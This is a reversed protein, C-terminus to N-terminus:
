VNDPMPKRRYRASGAPFCSAHFFVGLGELYETTPGMADARHMEVAYIVGSETAPRVQERCRECIYVPRMRTIDDRLVGGASDGNTPSSLTPSQMPHGPEVPEDGGELFAVPEHPHEYGRM